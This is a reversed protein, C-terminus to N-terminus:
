KSEHYKTRKAIIVNKEKIKNLAFTLDPDIYRKLGPILGGTYFIWGFSDVSDSHVVPSHPTRKNYDDIFIKFWVGFPLDESSRAKINQVKKDDPDKFIEVEVVLVKSYDILDPNLEANEKRYSWVNYVELPINLFSIYMRSFACPLMFPILSTAAWIGYQLENCLNFVLTFLGMGILTNFFVLLLEIYYAMDGIGTIMKRMIRINFIGLTFYFIMLGLYAYPMFQYDILGLLAPLALVVWLSIFYFIIKKKGLLNNRKAVFIMIFGALVAMLPMLLYTFVFKGALSEM